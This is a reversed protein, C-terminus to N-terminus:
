QGASHSSEGSRALQRQLSVVLEELVAIVRDKEALLRETTERHAALEMEYKVVTSDM